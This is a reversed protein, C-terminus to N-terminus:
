RSTWYLNSRTMQSREWEDFLPSNEHSERSQRLKYVDKQWVAHFHNYVTVMRSGAVNPARIPLVRLFEAGTFGEFAPIVIL